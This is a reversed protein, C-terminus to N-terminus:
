SGRRHDSSTRRAAHPTGPSRRVAFRSVPVVVSSRLVVFTHADHVQDAGTRAVGAEDGDAAQLIQRRGIHHEVVVEHRRAQQARGACVGFLNIDAGGRELRQLLLRDAIQEGFLRALALDDRTQFPAIREHEVAAPRFRQEQVLLADAEFHHRANRCADRHRAIRADRDGVRAAAVRHRENAAVFVLALRRGRDVPGAQRMEVARQDAVGPRLLQRPHQPRQERVSPRRFVGCRHDVVARERRLLGDGAREALDRLQDLLAGIPAGGHQHDTPDHRQAFVQAPLLIRTVRGL